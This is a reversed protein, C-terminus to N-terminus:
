QEKYKMNNEQKLHEINYVNLNNYMFYSHILVLHIIDSHILVLLTSEETCIFM